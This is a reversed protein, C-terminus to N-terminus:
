IRLLEVSLGYFSNPAGTANTKRTLQRESAERGLAAWQLETLKLASLPEGTTAYHQRIAAIMGAISLIKGNAIAGTHAFGTTKM